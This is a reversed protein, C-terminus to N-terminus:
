GNNAKLIQGLREKDYLKPEDFFGTAVTINNNPLVAKLQKMLDMSATKGAVDADLWILIRVSDPVVASKVYEVIPDIKVDGSSTGKLSIAAVAKTPESELFIRGASISDETIYVVKPSVNQYINVQNDGYSYYRVHSSIHKEAKVFRLQGFFKDRYITGWDPIAIYISPNTTTVHEAKPFQQIGLRQVDADTLHYQRLYSVAELSEVCGLASQYIGTLHESISNIKVNDEVELVSDYKTDSLSLYAIGKASCHHCFWVYGTASVKKIYLRKKRDEGAPCDLHNVHVQEDVKSPLDTAYLSLDLKTAM